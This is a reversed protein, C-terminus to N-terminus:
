RRRSRTFFGISVLGALWLALTSPQPVPSALALATRGVEFDFCSRDLVKAERPNCIGTASRLTAREAHGVGSSNFVARTYGRAAISSGSCFSVPDDCIVVEAVSRGDFTVSGSSGFGAPDFAIAPSLTTADRGWVYSGPWPNSLEDFTLKGAADPGSAFDITWKYTLAVAPLAACAFALVAAVLVRLM